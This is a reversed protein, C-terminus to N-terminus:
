TIEPPQKIGYLSLEIFLIEYNLDTPTRILYDAPQALASDAEESYDPSLLKLNAPHRRAKTVDRAVERLFRCNM